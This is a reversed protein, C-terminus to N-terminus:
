PIMVLQEGLATKVCLQVVALKLSDRNLDLWVAGADTAPAACAATCLRAAKRLGVAMGPRWTCLPGSGIFFRCPGPNNRLRAAM